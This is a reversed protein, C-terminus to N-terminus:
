YISIALQLNCAEMRTPLQLNRTQKAAFQLDIAPPSVEVDLQM